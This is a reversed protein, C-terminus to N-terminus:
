VEKGRNKDSGNEEEIIELEPYLRRLSKEIEEESVNFYVAAELIELRTVKKLM